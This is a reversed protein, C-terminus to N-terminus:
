DMQTELGGSKRQKWLRRAQRSHTPSLGRRRSHVLLPRGGRWRYVTCKVASLELTASGPNKDRIRIKDMGSGFEKWGPDADFFKFITELSESIHDRIWIKAWEPDRVWPYFLCRIGSGSGCCQEATRQEEVPLHM